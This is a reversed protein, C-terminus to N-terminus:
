QEDVFNTKLINKLDKRIFSLKTGKLKNLVGDLYNDYIPRFSKNGLQLQEKCYILGSIDDAAKVILGELNDFKRDWQTLYKEKIVKPLDQLIYNLSKRNLVELEGKLKQRFIRIIDGSVGEDLDHLLARLIVNEVNIKHGKEQLMHAMILAYLTVFYSHSSVTEDFIRLRTSYRIIRSIRRHPGVLFRALNKM